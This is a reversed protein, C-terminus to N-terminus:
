GGAHGPLRDRSLGPPPPPRCGRTLFMSLWPSHSTFVASRASRNLWFEANLKIGKPFETDDDRLSMMLIAWRKLAPNRCSPFLTGSPRCFVPNRDRAEATGGPSQPSWGRSGANFRQAITSHGPPVSKWGFERFAEADVETNEPYPLNGRLCSDRRESCNAM